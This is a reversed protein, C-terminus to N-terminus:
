NHTMFGSAYKGETWLPCLTTGRRASGSIRPALKTQGRGYRRLLEAQVLRFATASRDRPRICVGLRSCYLWQKVNEFPVLQGLPCRLRRHLYLLSVDFGDLKSDPTFAAGNPNRRILFLDGRATFGVMLAAVGFGKRRNRLRFCFRGLRYINASM